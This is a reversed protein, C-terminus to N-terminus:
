MFTKSQPAKILYGSNVFNSDNTSKKNELIILFITYNQVERSWSKDKVYMSFVDLVAFSSINEIHIM